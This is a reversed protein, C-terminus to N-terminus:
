ESQTKDNVEFENRYSQPSKGFRKKFLRSFYAPDSFGLVESIEHMSYSTSRLLSCANDLRLRIRYDVPTQGTAEKFLRIFHYKSYGSNKAYEEVSTNAYYETQIATIVRKISSAQLFSSKKQAIVSLLQILLGTSVVSYHLNKTQLEGIILDFIRTVGASLGISYVTETELHLDQMLLDIKDGMFHIWYYAVLDTEEIKYGHRTNPPIFILEGAKMCIEEQSTIFTSSNKVLYIMHWDTIDGARRGQERILHYKRAGFDSFGCETVMCDSLSAVIDNPNSQYIHIIDRSTPNKESVPFNKENFM